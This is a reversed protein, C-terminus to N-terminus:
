KTSERDALFGKGFDDVWKGIAGQWAETARVLFPELEPYGTGASDGHIVVFAPTRQVVTNFLESLEWFPGSETDLSGFVDPRTSRCYDFFLFHLLEHFITFRIYDDEGYMFVCLAREDLFRPGFDFISLYVTYPGAPWQHGDSIRDVERFFEDQKERCLGAIHRKREDFEPRCKGYIESVYNSLFRKPNETDDIKALDEHLKLAGDIWFDQGYWKPRKYFSWAVESDTSADLEFLLDLHDM